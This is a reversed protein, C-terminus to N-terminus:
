RPNELEPVLYEEVWSADRESYSVFADYCLLPEADTGDRNQRRRRSSSSRKAKLWAWTMKVYWFAHVRWLVVVLAVAMVLAVSCSVCVVLFQHCDTISLHVQGVLEGQLHLPSDCIYSEEEDTLAIARQGGFILQLLPVFECSCDFKNQGAQLNSLRQYSKLETNNFASLTNSQPPVPRM